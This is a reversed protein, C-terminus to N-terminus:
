TFETVNLITAHTVAMAIITRVRNRTYALRNIVAAGPVQLITGSDEGPSDRAISRVRHARRENHTSKLRYWIWSCGCTCIVKKAFHVLWAVLSLGTLFIVLAQLWRNPARLLGLILLCMALGNSVVAIWYARTATLTMARSRPIMANM